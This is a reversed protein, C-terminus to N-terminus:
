QWYQVLKCITLGIWYLEELDTTQRGYQELDETLREREEKPGPNAIRKRLEANKIM